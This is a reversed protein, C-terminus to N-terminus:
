SLHKTNLMKRAAVLVAIAIPVSVFDIVITALVTTAIALGLLYIDIAFFILTELIVAIVMGAIENKKRLLGASLAMPTRAVILGILFPYFYAGPNITGMSTAALFGLGCGLATSVTGIRAGFLISVVFIVAPALNVSSIPPPLPIALITTVAILAAMVATLATKKSNSLRTQTTQTKLKLNPKNM